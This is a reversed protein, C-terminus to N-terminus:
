SVLLAADIGPLALPERDIRFPLGAASLSRTIALQVPTLPGGGAVQLSLGEPRHEAAAAAQISRVRWGATQFAGRIASSYALGDRAVAAYTIYVEGKQPSLEVVMQRRQEGTLRRRPAAPPIAPGESPRSRPLDPAATASRLPRAPPGPAPHSALRLRLDLVVGAYLRELVLWVIMSALLVALGFLIPAHGIVAREHSFYEM